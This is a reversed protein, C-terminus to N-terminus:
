AAAEEHEDAAEQGSPLLRASSLPSLPSRTTAAIEEDTVSLPHHCAALHGGPYAALPPEVKRCV